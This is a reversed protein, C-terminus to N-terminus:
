KMKNKIQRELVARTKYVRKGNKTVTLRIKLKKAKNKLTKSLVPTKGFAVYSGIHRAIDKSFVGRPYQNNKITLVRDTARARVITRTKNRTQKSKFIKQIKKAALYAIIKNNRRRKAIDLVSAYRNMFIHRSKQTIDAGHEVLFQFIEFQDSLAARMLPTLDQRDRKNVDAGKGVLFRVIKFHGYEAALSLPTSDWITNKNINYRTILRRVLPLNNVMIAEGLSKFIGIVSFRKLTMYLVM